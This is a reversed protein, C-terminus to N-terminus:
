DNIIKGGMLKMAAYLPNKDSEEPTFTLRKAEQEDVFVVKLSTNIIKAVVQQITLKNKIENLKAKYFSYKAKIYLKDEIIGIPACNKLLAHVSHNLPQINELIVSWQDLVM